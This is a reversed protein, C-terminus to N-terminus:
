IDLESLMTELRDCSERLMATEREITSVLPSQNVSKSAPEIGPPNQPSCRRVAVLRENLQDVLASLRARNNALMKLSEEMPAQRGPIDAASTYRPDVQPGSVSAYM